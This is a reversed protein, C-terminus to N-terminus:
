SRHCHQQSRPHGQAPPSPNCSRGGGKAAGVTLSQLKPGRGQLEPPPSAAGGTLSQLKLERGKCSRCCPKRCWCGGKTADARRRSSSCSAATTGVGKCSECPAARLHSVPSSPSCRSAAAPSPPITAVRPPTPRRRRPSVGAHHPPPPRLLLNSLSPLFALPRVLPPAGDTLLYKKIGM